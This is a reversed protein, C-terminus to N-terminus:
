EKTKDKKLIEEIIKERNDEILIFNRKNYWGQYEIYYARDHINVVKYREGKKLAKSDNICIVYM